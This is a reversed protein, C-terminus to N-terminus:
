VEEGEVGLHTAIAVVLAEVRTLRGEMGTMQTRLGMVDQRLQEFTQTHEAQTIALAQVLHHIARVKQTLDSLDRDGAARLNAQMGLQAEVAAMRRLYGPAQDDDDSM